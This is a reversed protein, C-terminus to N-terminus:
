RGAVDRGCHSCATAAAPIRSLCHPCRQWLQASSFSGMFGRGGRARGLVTVFLFSLALSALGSADPNDAAYALATGITSGFVCGWILPHRLAWIPWRSTGQPVEGTDVPEESAVAPAIADTWCDGNWWRQGDGAPDPNPYWGPPAKSGGHAM